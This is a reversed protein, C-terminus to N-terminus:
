RRRFSLTAGGAGSRFVGGLTRLSARCRARFEPNLSAPSGPVVRIWARRADAGTSVRLPGPARTLERFLARLVARVPWPSGRLAPVDGPELLIRGKLLKADDKLAGIVCSNLDMGPAHTGLLDGVALIALSGPDDAPSAPLERGVAFLYTRDGMRLPGSTVEIPRGLDLRFKVTEGDLKRRHLDLLERHTEPPCYELYNRGILAGPRAQVNEHAARNAWVIRGDTDLLLVADRKM